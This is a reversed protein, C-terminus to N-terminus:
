LINLLEQKIFFEVKTIKHKSYRIEFHNLSIKSKNTMRKPTAM